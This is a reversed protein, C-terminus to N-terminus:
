QPLCLFQTEGYVVKVAAGRKLHTHIKVKVEMKNDVDSLKFTPGLKEKLKQELLKWKLSGIYNLFNGKVNNIRPEM